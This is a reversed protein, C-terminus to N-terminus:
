KLTATSLFGELRELRWREGVLLKQLILLKLVQAIMFRKPVSVDGAKSWVCNPGSAFFCQKTFQRQLERLQPRVKPLLTVFIFYYCKAGERTNARSTTLARVSKTDIDKETIGCKTYLVRLLAAYPTELRDIHGQPFMWANDHEDVVQPLGLLIGGAPTRVVAVVTPIEEVFLVSPMKKLVDFVPRTM